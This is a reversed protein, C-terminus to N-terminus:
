YIASQRSMIRILSFHCNENPMLNLLTRSAELSLWQSNSTTNVEVDVVSYGASRFVESTNRLIEMVALLDGSYKTADNSIMRLRSLMESVGDVQVGTQSKTFQERTQPYFSVHYNSYVTSDPM